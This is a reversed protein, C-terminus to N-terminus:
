RHGWFVDDLEPSASHCLLPSPSPLSCGTVRRVNQLSEPDWRGRTCGGGGLRGQGAAICNPSNEGNCPVGTVWSPNTPFVTAGTADGAQCLAPINRHQAHVNTEITQSLHPSVPRLWACEFEPALASAPPSTGRCPDPPPSLMGLGQKSCPSMGSARETYTPIPCHGM